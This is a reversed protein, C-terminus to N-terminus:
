FKMKNVHNPFIACFALETKVRQTPTFLHDSKSRQYYCKIHFYYCWVDEEFSLLVYIIYIM